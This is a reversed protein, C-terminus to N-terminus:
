AQVRPKAIMKFNPKELNIAVEKKIKEEKPKMLFYGLVVATLGLGSLIVIKKTKTM